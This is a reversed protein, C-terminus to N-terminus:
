QRFWLEFLLPIKASSASDFQSILLAYPRLSQEYDFSSYCGLLDEPDTWEIGDLKEVDILNLARREFAKWSEMMVMRWGWVNKKDDLEHCCIFKCGQSLIRIAQKQLEPFCDGCKEWWIRPHFSKAMEIATDTFLIPDMSQYQILQSVCAKEEEDSSFILNSIFQKIRNFQLDAEKFKQALLNSPNLFAASEHIPFIIDKKAESFLEWIIQYHASDLANKDEVYEALSSQTKELLEYLYGLGPSDVSLLLSMAQFLPCLIMELRKLGNWFDKCHIVFNIFIAAEKDEHEVVQDSCVQIPQLTQEFRILSKLVWFGSAIKCLEADWHKHNLCGVVADLNKFKSMDKPICVIRPEYYKDIFKSVVTASKVINRVFGVQFINVLLKGVVGAACKSIVTVWPYQENFLNMVSQPVKEHALFQVINAPDIVDLQEKIDRVWYKESDWPLAQSSQTQPYVDPWLFIGKPTYVRIGRFIEYWSRFKKIDPTITCGTKNLSQKLDQFYEDVEKEVQPILHTDLTERDPLQYPSGFESVAKIFDIFFPSDTFDYSSESDKPRSTAIFKALMKDVSEKDKNKAEMVAVAGQSAPPSSACIIAKSM